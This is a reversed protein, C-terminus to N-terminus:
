KKFNKLQKQLAWKEELMSILRDKNEKIGERGCALLFYDYREEIDKIKNEIMSYDLEIFMDKQM